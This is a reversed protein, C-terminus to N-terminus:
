DTPSGRPKPEPLLESTKRGSMLGGDRVSLVTPMNTQMDPMIRLGHATHCTIGPSCNMATKVTCRSIHAPRNLNGTCSISKARVKAANLAPLLMGALIAIIAIVVLLEILTFGSRKSLITQNM